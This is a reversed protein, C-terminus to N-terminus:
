DGSTEQEKHEINRKKTRAILGAIQNRIKKSPMTEGLVKKNLDFNESFPLDKEILTQATRKVLKTKIKGM